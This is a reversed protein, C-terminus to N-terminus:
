RSQIARWFEKVSPDPHSHALDILDVRAETPFHALCALVPCIADAPVEADGIVNELVRVLDKSPAVARQELANECLLAAAQGRLRMDEDGTAMGAVLVLDDLAIPPSLIAFAARRVLVEEDSLLGELNPKAILGAEGLLKLGVLASVRIDVDLRVDRALSQLQVALQQAQAPVVELFGLIPGSKRSLHNLLADTARSAVQRDRAGMLAGLYALVPWPQELCGAVDLAILREARSGHYFASVLEGPTLTIALYHTIVPDPNFVAKQLLQSVRPKVHDLPIDEDSSVTQAWLIWVAVLLFATTMSNRLQVSLGM